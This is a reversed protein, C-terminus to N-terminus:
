AELWMRCKRLWWSKKFFSSHHPPTPLSKCSLKKREGKTVQTIAVYKESWSKRASNLSILSSRPSRVSGNKRVEMAIKALVLFVCVLSRSRMGVPCSCFFLRSSSDAAANKIVVCSAGPWQGSSVISLTCEELFWVAPLGDRGVGDGHRVYPECDADLPHYGEQTIM